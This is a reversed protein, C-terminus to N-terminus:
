ASQLGDHCFIRQGDGGGARRNIEVPVAGQFLEAAAGRAEVHFIGQSGALGAPPDIEVAGGARQLEAHDPVYHFLVQGIVGVGVGVDVEVGLQRGPLEFPRVPHHQVEDVRVGLGVATEEDAAAGGAADVADGARHRFLPGVPVHHDGGDHFVMGVVQRMSLVEGLHHVNGHHHRFLPEAGRVHRPDLRRQFPVTLAHVVDGDGAHGVHGTDDVRDVVDGFQGVAVAGQDQHVRGLHRGM